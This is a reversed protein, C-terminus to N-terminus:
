RVNLIKHTQMSLKWIPHKLVYDLTKSRIEENRSADGTDVPQLSKLRSKTTEYQSVDQGWYVIKLEDIRQVHPEEGGKPSCTVWDVEAGEPLPLTGNTELHISFGATKLARTLSATLQLLPEGGTVIINKAPFEQAREVIEQETMEAFRGFDTDCFPCNRNCGALRLFVAPLGTHAGEGQISYFIENVRMPLRQDTGSM